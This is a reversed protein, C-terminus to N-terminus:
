LTWTWVADLAAARLACYPAHAAAAHRLLCVAELNELWRSQPACLCALLRLRWAVDVASSVALWRNASGLRERM